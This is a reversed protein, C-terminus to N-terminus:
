HRDLLQCADVPLDNRGRIRDDRHAVVAEIPAVSHELHDAEVGAAREGEGCMEVADLARGGRDLQWHIARGELPVEGREELAKPFAIRLQPDDEGAAAATKRHGLLKGVLALGDAERADGVVGPCPASSASRTLGSPITSSAGVDLMKQTEGSPPRRVGAIETPMRSDIVRACIM